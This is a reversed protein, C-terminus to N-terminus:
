LQFFYLWVLQKRVIAYRHKLDLSILIPSNPTKGGTFRTHFTTAAVSYFSRLNEIFLYAPYCRFFFYVVIIQSINYNKVLTRNYTLGPKCTQRIANYRKWKNVRGSWWTVPSSVWLYSTRWLTDPTNTSWPLTNFETALRVTQLFPLTNPIIEFQKITTRYFHETFRKEL